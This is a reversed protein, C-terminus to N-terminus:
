AAKGHVTLSDLIKQIIKVIDLPPAPKSMDGGEVGELEGTSVSRFGDPMAGSGNDFENM